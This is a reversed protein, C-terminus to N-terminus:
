SRRGSELVKRYCALTTEAARRWSFQSARGRGAEGLERRLADDLVLQEIAAAIESTRQPSFMLASDGVLERLSPIASCAVPVGRAMAELVPLGFGEYLTPMVVCRALRYLGELVEPPQYGLLRIDTEVGAARARERVPAGDTGLGAIVLLPRREPALLALAGFLAGLNKHPLATSISLVVRRNGIAYRDRLEAEPVADSVPTGVGNPIVEIRERPVPLSAALERAGSESVAIIRDAKRAALGIMAATAARRAATLLQPVARYQLDHITIVRHFRGHAPAFNALSHVIEVGARAAAVPLLALEGIAWQGPRRATVPLGVVSLQSGYTRRLEGEAERNAFATARIAPDLELMASILERAYTERGGSERPILFLLDLGLRTVQELSVAGAPRGEM